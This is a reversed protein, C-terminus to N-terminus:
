CNLQDLQMELKTYYQYDAWAISEIDDNTIKEDIKLFDKLFAFEEELELCQKNLSAETMSIPMDRYIPSIESLYDYGGSIGIVHITVLVVGIIVVRKWRLQIDSKKSEKVDSQNM